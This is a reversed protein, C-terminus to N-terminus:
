KGPLDSKAKSVNSFHIKPLQNKSEVVDNLSSNSLNPFQLKQGCENPSVQQAPHVGFGLDVFSTVISWLTEIFVCKENDSLDSEELYSAYLDWDIIFPPFKVANATNGTNEEM